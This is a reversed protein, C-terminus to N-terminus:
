VVLRDEKKQLQQVVDDENFVDFFRQLEGSAPMMALDSEAFDGASVSPLEYAQGLSIFAFMLTTLQKIDM